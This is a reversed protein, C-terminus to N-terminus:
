LGLLHKLATHMHLLGIIRDQKDVVPLDYIDASEMFAVADALEMDSNVRKPNETMHMGIDEAFLAALPKHEALLVRRLDGDTFVGILKDQDDIICAFGLHKESMQVVADRVLDKSNLLVSKDRGLAVDEVRIKAGSAQM